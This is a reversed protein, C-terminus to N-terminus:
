EIVRICVRKTGPATISVPMSGAQWQTQVAVSLIGHNAHIELINQDLLIAADCVPTQLPICEGAYVIADPQIDLVEGGLTIRACGDASDALEILVALRKVPTYCLPEALPATRETIVVAEAYLERVFDSHLLGGADMHLEMPVGMMGTFTDVTKTRLWPVLIKRKGANSYTQAAYPLTALAYLLHSEGEATFGYGDFRGPWYRGDAAFFAWREGAETEFRVLDPCEFGGALTLRQSQSWHELDTSRYIGFDDNELWMVLIWARTEPHYFVKPDRNEECITDIVGCPLKQLTRGNDASVAVHQTYHRGPAPHEVGGAATYFFALTDPKQGLLGQENVIGSGSFMAGTEDPWLATDRQTWHLLDTSEAHGWSMNEWDVNFPNHQFYLHWVGDHRVLGNPDNLWGNDPAFHVLPRKGRPPAPPTDALVVKEFFEPAFAGALTITQGQVGKCPVPALYAPQGAGSEPVRVRLTFPNEGEATITLTQLAAGPWVPIMLYPQECLMSKQM